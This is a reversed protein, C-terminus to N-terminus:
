VKKKLYEIPSRDSTCIRVALSRGLYISRQRGSDRFALWYYPGLRRGRYTQWSAVVAGQHAFRAGHALVYPEEREFRATKKEDVPDHKETNPGEPLPHATDLREFPAATKEDVHDLKEM